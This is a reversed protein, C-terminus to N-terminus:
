GGSPSIVEQSAPQADTSTAAPELTGAAPQEVVAPIASPDATLVAGADVPVEAPEVKPAEEVAPAADPAQDKCSANLPLLAILLLFLPFLSTPRM